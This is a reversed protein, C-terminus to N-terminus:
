TLRGPSYEGPRRRNEAGPRAGTTPYSYVDAPTRMRNHRHPLGELWANFAALEKHQGRATLDGAHVLVDGDPVTIQKHLGHTESIAIIRLAM